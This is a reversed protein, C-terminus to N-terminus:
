RKKNKRKTKEGRTEISLAGNVRNIRSRKSAWWGQYEERMRGVIEPPFGSSFWEGVQKQAANKTWSYSAMAWEEVHTREIAMRPKQIGKVGAIVNRWPMPKGVMDWEEQTFRSLEKDLKEVFGMDADVAVEGDLERDVPKGSSARKKPTVGRNLKAATRNSPKKMTRKSETEHYHIM